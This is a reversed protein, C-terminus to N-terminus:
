VLRCTNKAIEDAIRPSDGISESIGMRICTIARPKRIKIGSIIAKM